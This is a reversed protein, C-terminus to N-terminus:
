CSGGGGGCGAESTVFNQIRLLSRLEDIDLGIANSEPPGDPILEPAALGLSPPQGTTKSVFMSNWAEGHGPEPPEIPKSEQAYISMFARSVQSNSAISDFRKGEGEIFFGPPDEDFWSFVVVDRLVPPTAHLDDAPTGGLLRAAGIEAGSYTRFRDPMPVDIRTRVNGPVIDYAQAKLIPLDLQRRFEEASMARARVGQLALRGVPLEELNDASASLGPQPRVSGIGYLHRPGEDPVLIAVEIDSVRWYGIMGHCVLNLRARPDLRQQITM